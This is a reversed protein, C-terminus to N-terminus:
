EVFQGGYRDLLTRGVERLNAAREELLPIVGRGDLIGALDASCIGALYRADLIPM